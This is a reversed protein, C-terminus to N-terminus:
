WKSLVTLFLRLELTSGMLTLFSDRYEDIQCFLEPSIEIYLTELYQIGM